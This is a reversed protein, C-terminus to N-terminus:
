SNQFHKLLQKESNTYSCNVKNEKISVETCGLNSDRMSAELKEETNDVRMKRKQNISLITM